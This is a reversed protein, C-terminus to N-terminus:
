RCYRCDVDECLQLCSAILSERQCQVSEIIYLEIEEIPAPNSYIFSEHDNGAEVVIFREWCGVHSMIKILVPSEGGGYNQEGSSVAFGQSKLFPNLHITCNVTREPM